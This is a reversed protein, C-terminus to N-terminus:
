AVPGQRLRKLGRGLGDLTLPFMPFVQAIAEITPHRWFRQPEPNLWISHKWHRRIRLLWDLGSEVHRDWSWGTGGAATLEWPAMCADGVFVFRAEAGHERFLRATPVSRSHEIDVWLRGYVCNHFFYHHFSKWHGAKSAATFLQDVLSAYPGMSGGADMLLVFRVSNRRDPRFLLDIEGGQQATKDITGDVDLCLEGERAMNRLARLAVEFQRVDLVADTRYNRYRREEAVSVASRQGGQGLRIGAPNRGSNGFPSTGGTGIYKSGGDHREAQTRLLEEFRRRLEDLDLGTLQRFAEADVPLGSIPNALWEKLREGIETGTMGRFTEAFALDYPDYHGETHVLLARALGYLDDGDAVLGKGLAEHLALWEQLGVPLGHRRLSLLFDAFV